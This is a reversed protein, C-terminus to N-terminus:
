DAQYSNKFYSYLINVKRILKDAWEYKLIDQVVLNIAHAICRISFIHSYKCSIIERTCKINSKNNSVIALFHEVSVSNLVEEIKDALFEETHKENSYDCLK